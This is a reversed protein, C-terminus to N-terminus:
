TDTVQGATLSELAEATDFDRLVADSTTNVESVYEMYKHLIQRAGADGSLNRLDNFFRQGWLVPNGRLGDYIPIIIERGEAPDYASIIRDLSSKEVAPMDGLCILVAGISDSLAAVGARLSAAMGDAYDSAHVFRINKGSLTERIQEEQHGVVVIIPSATSTLIRDVTQAIMTKGNPLVALLKNKPAMRSSLGAALVLAAVRPKTAPAAGFGAESESARPTPRTEIEKLLGGVGLRAVENPGLDEGAFIMDLVWDIGNQKPSRACGPLVIAHRIGIKGFCILNGPDVPMGFHIIDGGAKVIAAPAVDQRDTVASAGSILIVDADRGLLQTIAGVLAPVEHATTLAPLLTGGHAEIRDTTAEITNSITVDKIHPLQTLVLGVKLPRFPKLTFAPNGVRILSVARDMPDAPVAFPIIKLTAIMDNKAVVSRDPLTALTISEDIQNLQEIKVTDLRLLGSAEAFLNVRGHVDNSRRLCPSLLLQGLRIAAEGEPVDGPELKLVTVDEYGAAFLLEYAATDLLAGKRIVRDATKLNHAIIGGRADALPVRGFIM